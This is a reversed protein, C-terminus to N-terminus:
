YYHAQVVSRLGFAAYVAAAKVAAHGFSLMKEATWFPVAGAPVAAATTTPTATRGELVSGTSGHEDFPLMMM